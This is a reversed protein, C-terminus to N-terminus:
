PGRWVLLKQLCDQSRTFYAFQCVQYILSVNELFYAFMKQSFSSNVKQDGTLSAFLQLVFYINHPFPPPLLFNTKISLLTLILSYNKFNELIACQLYSFLLRDKCFAGLCRNQNYSENLRNQRPEFLALFTKHVWSNSKFKKDWLNKWSEYTWWKLM